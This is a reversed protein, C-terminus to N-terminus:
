EDAWAVMHRRIHVACGKNSAERTASQATDLSLRNQETKVVDLHGNTSARRRLIGGMGRLVVRREVPGRLVKSERHIESFQRM